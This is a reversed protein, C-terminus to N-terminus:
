MPSLPTIYKNCLLQILHHLVANGHLQLLAYDTGCKPYFDHQNYTFFDRRAEESPFDCWSVGYAQSNSSSSFELIKQSSFNSHASDIKQSAPASM